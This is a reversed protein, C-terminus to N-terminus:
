RQTRKQLLYIFFPAGLLSMFIGVPIEMPSFAYRALTDAGVVLASGFLASCPLLYEFDTGVVMRTIHPIILGVFGVMGAVSVSSAALMAALVVLLLRVRSLNVGLGRVAEEGLQLLNLQRYAWLYSLLGLCSYPLIMFVHKWTQGQLSGAMWSVVSQVRDPFFVFLITTLAACFSGTIMGSLILRMPSLGDKSALAFVVAMTLMAGGLACIPVLSTASPFLMMVAIAVLGAGASIGTTSADAMPNSFIGQMICGAMALNLGVCAGSLVRPLRINCIIQTADADAAGIFVQWIESPSIHVSGLAIGALLSLALAALGSTGAAARVAARADVTM